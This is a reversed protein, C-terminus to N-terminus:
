TKLKYSSISVDKLALFCSFILAIDYKQLFM